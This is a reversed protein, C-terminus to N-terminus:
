PKNDGSQAGGQPERLQLGRVRARERIARDHDGRVKEEETQTKAARMRQRYREREQSTMLESGPIIERKVPAAIQDAAHVAFVAAGPLVALWCLVARWRM